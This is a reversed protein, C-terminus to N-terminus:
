PEGHFYRFPNGKGGAGIRQILGAEILEKLAYRGTKRSPVMAVAFLADQTMAQAESDPMCKLLAEKAAKLSVAANDPPIGLEALLARTKKERNLALSALTGPQRGHSSEETEGYLWGVSGPRGKSPTMRLRADRLHKECYRVSNHALPKPCVACLGGAINREAYRLAAALHATGQPLSPLPVLDEESRGQIRIQEQAWAIVDEPHELAHRLDNRSITRFWAALWAQASQDIMYDVLVHMQKRADAVAALRALEFSALLNEPCGLLFNLPISKALPLIPKRTKLRHAKTMQWRVM